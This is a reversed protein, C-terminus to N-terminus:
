LKGQNTKPNEQDINLKDFFEKEAIYCTGFTDDLVHLYQAYLNSYNQFLLPMQSEVKKFIESTGEKMIECVSLKEEQKELELENYKEM